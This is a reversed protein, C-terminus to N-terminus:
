LQSWNCLETNGNLAIDAAVPNFCHIYPSVKNWTLDSDVPKVWFTDTVSLAHTIDLFDRLTKIQMTDLLKTLNERGRKVRKRYLLEKLDFYEPIEKFQEVITTTQLIDNVYFSAIQEDKNLLYYEPKRNSNM